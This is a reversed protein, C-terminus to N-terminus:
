KAIVFTVKRAVDCKECYFWSTLGRMGSLGSKSSGIRKKLIAYNYILRHLNENKHIPCHITLRNGVGIKFSQTTIRPTAYRNKRVIRKTAFKKRSIRIKTRRQTKRRKRNIEDTNKHYYKRAMKRRYEIEKKTKKKDAM